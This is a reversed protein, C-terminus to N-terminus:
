RKVIAKIKAWDNAPIPRYIWGHGYKYPKGAYDPNYKAETPTLRVEYLGKHKLYEVAEEYKAGKLGAKELASEQAKTGAHMDNNNYLIALRKIEQFLADNQPVHKIENFLMTPGGAIVDTDRSNWIGMSASFAFHGDIDLHIEVEVTVRNIKRGSPNHYNIKGFDFTKRVM